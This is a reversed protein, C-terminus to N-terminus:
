DKLNAFPRRGNHQQKFDSILECEVERPENNPLIKWCILLDRSDQLQWILRGGWHGVNKGQGFKLYQNLRSNLTAQGTAEGAKGIYIVIADDVWEQELQQIPINPNKGKFHGGSGVTLFLPASKTNRIILYVGKQKPISSSNMMLDNISKFGTFGNMKLSEITNFDLNTM